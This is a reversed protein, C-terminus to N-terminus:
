LEHTDNRNIAAKLKEVEDLTLGTGSVVIEISVGQKLLNKAVERKGEAKGKVEGEALGEIYKDMMLTKERRVQDWYSQYVELEGPTYASEEALAVAEAIEPVSLLEQSVTKTKEDIERLFRLWLLRLKKQHNHRLIVM